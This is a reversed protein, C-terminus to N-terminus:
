LGGMYLAPNKVIRGCCACAISNNSLMSEANIGETGGKYEFLNWSQFYPYGCNGCRHIKEGSDPKFEFIDKLLENNKYFLHPRLANFEEWDMLITPFQKFKEKEELNVLEFKKQEGFSEFRECTLVFTNQIVAVKSGDEIIFKDEDEFFEYIIYYDKDTYLVIGYSDTLLAHRQYGEKFERLKKELEVM